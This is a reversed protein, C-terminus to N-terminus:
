RHSSPTATPKLPSEAGALFPSETWGMPFGMMEEVFRPNLQSTKGTITRCRKTLSDQNETGTIKDCEQAMPTPLMYNRAMTGLNCTTKGINKPNGSSIMQQRWSQYDEEIETAKPTPLLRLDMFETNGNSNCVKLGQTQITPLLGSGIETTRPTSAQLLFYLRKSKTARLNWTLMCRMSYWDTRGVLLGAFMRAWSGGQSSREYQELCRQGCTASTM